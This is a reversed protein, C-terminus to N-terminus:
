SWGREGEKAHRICRGSVRFIVTDTDHYELCGGWLGRAVCLRVGLSDDRIRCLGSINIDLGVYILVM